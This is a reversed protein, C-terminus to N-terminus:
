NRPKAGDDTLHLFQTVLKDFCKVSYTEGLLEVNIPEYRHLLIGIMDCSLFIWNALKAAEGFNQRAVGLLEAVLTGLQTKQLKFKTM